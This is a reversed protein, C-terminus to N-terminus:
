TRDMTREYHLTNLKRCSGVDSWQNRESAHPNSESLGRSPHQLCGPTGEIPVGGLLRDTEAM